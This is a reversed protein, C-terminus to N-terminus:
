YINVYGRYRPYMNGFAEIAKKDMDKYRCIVDVTGLWRVEKTIDNVPNRFIDVYVFGEVNFHHKFLNTKIIFWKLKYKFQYWKM